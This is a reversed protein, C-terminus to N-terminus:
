KSGLEQLLDEVEKLREEAKCKKFLGVAETLKERARESDGNKMLARGYELLTMAREYPVPSDIKIMLCKEFNEYANKWIKANSYAVGYNHYVESLRMKDSVDEMIKKAKDLCDLAKDLNGMKSYPDSLNVLASMLLSKNETREALMLTKEWCEIADRYDNQDFYQVGLNNYARALPHLYKGKELKEIARKYYELSKERDGTRSYVLGIDIFTEGYEADMEAAKLYDLSKEHYELAKRFDGKKWYTKGIGRYVEALTPFDQITVARREALRYKELAGELNVQERLAHAQAALIRGEEATDGKVIIFAKELYLQAMRFEGAGLALESRIRYSAAISKPALDLNKVGAVVDELQRAAGVRILSKANTSALELAGPYDEAGLLHKLTASVNGEDKLDRHYNAAVKHYSKRDDHKITRYVTDTVIDPLFYVDQAPEKALGLMVLREFAEHKAQPIKVALMHVPINFVSLCGLVAREDDSLKRMIEQGIFKRFDKAAGSLGSRLILEIYLPHGETYKYVTEGPLDRANEKELLEITEELSLGGLEMEMVINKLVTDRQDYVGGLPERSTTILKAMPGAKAADRGPDGGPPPAKVFLKLLPRYDFSLKQIDDLVLLLALGMLDAELAGAVDSLTLPSLESFLMYKLRNKGLQSLFEAVPELTNRLTDVERCTHFVVSFSRVAGQAFKSVLSTKGIAAQGTLMLYRAPGRDLFDDLAALEKHRGVFNKPVQLSNRSNVLRPEPARRLKDGSIVAEISEDSVEGTERTARLLAFLNNEMKLTRQLGALTPSTRRATSDMYSVKRSILRGLEEEALEAGSETPIYALPRRRTNGTRIRERRILKEKLLPSLMRSLRPISVGLGESMGRQTADEPAPDAGGWGKGDTVTKLYILIKMAPSLNEWLSKLPM